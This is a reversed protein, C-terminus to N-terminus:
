AVTSIHRQQCQYESTFSLTVPLSDVSLLDKLTAVGSHWQAAAPAAARNQQQAAMSTFQKLSSMLRTRGSCSCCMQVATSYVISRGNDGQNRVVTVTEPMSNHQIRDPQQGDWLRGLSPSCQQAEHEGGSCLAKCEQSVSHAHTGRAVQQARQHGAPHQAVKQSRVDCHVLLHLGGRSYVPEALMNKQCAHKEQAANRFHASTTTHTLPSLVMPYGATAAHM